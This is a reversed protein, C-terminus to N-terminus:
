NTSSHFLMGLALGTGSLRPSPGAVWPQEAVSWPLVHTVPGLLAMVITRDGTAPADTSIARLILHPRRRSTRASLAALWASVALPMWHRSDGVSRDTDKSKYYTNLNVSQIKPRLWPYDAFTIPANGAM